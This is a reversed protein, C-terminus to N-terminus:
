GRETIFESDPSLEAQRQSLAVRKAEALAAMWRTRARVEKEEKAELAVALEAALLWSLADTFAPKFKAVDTVRYTYILVPEEVNALLVDAGAEDEIEFPVRNAASPNTTGPYIYRPAVCDAPLSYVYDWGDREVGALEALSARRTAFPWPFAELAADRMPEYFLNCTEAAESADSLSEIYDRVGIRALALNCIQVESAAM